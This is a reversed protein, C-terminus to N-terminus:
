RGIAKARGYAGALMLFWGALMLGAMLPQSAKLLLLAVGALLLAVGVAAVFMSVLYLLWLMGGGGSREPAASYIRIPMM